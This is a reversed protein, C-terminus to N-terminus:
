HGVHGVLDLGLPLEGRRFLARVNGAASARDLEDLRLAGQRGGAGGTLPDALSSLLDKGDRDLSQAVLVYHGADDGYPIHEVVVAYEALHSTPGPEHVVVAADAGRVVIVRVGAATEIRPISSADGHTRVALKKRFAALQEGRTAGKSALTAAPAAHAFNTALSVADALQRRAEAKSAPSAALALQAAARDQEAVCCLYLEVATDMDRETALEAVETRLAQVLSHLTRRGSPTLGTMFRPSLGHRGDVLFADRVAAFLCQGRGENDVHGFGPGLGGTADLVSTDTELEDEDFWGAFYADAAQDVDWEHAELIAVAFVVDDPAMCTKDFLDAITVAKGEADM